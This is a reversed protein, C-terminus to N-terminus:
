RKLASRLHNRHKRDEPKRLDSQGFQGVIVALCTMLAPNQCALMVRAGYKAPDVVDYVRQDTTQEISQNRAMAVRVFSVEFGNQRSFVRFM